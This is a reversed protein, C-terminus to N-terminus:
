ETPKIQLGALPQGSRSVIKACAGWDGAGQAIKMLLTNWGKALKVDVKDSGPTCGRTTNNAHVVKGNLWVKVGDDSGLELRADQDAPSYVRTRLYAVANEGGFIRALDVIIGMGGVPQWKVDAGDKEPPFAVDFLAQGGKNAERFPGAVVWAKIYDRDRRILELVSTADKRTGEVQAVKLVKEM